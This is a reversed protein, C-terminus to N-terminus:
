QDETPAVRAAQQGFTITICVQHGGSEGGRDNTHTPTPPQPPPLLSPATADRAKETKLLDTYMVVVVVVVM